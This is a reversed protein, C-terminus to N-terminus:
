RRERFYIYRDIKFVKIDM